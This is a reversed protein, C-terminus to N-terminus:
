KAAQMGIFEIVEEVFPTSELTTLPLRAIPTPIVGLAALVAKHTAPQLNKRISEIMPLAFRFKEEASGREGAFWDDVIPCLFRSLVNAAGSITGSWGANLAEMLLTENGVFLVQDDRKLASRYESLNAVEGSSDKCGAMKPHDGLRAMTGASITVGTMKPFNYVLIPSPSRDLVYLFWECVKDEPVERFYSPAMLLVATAGFEEARKCLWIAEDYSPTAVGLILELKGRVSMGDRILDRKEVASLSPGEGNTGALVAGRCGDAEFWALLKALGNKDTDGKVDFPTVSAPYVGPSIVLHLTGSTPQPLPCLAFPVPSLAFPFPSLSTSM